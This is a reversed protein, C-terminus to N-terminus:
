LDETYLDLLELRLNKNEETLNAIKELNKKTGQSFMTTAQSFDELLEKVDDWDCWDGNRHQCMEVDYGGIDYRKM